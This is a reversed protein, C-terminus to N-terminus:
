ATVRTHGKMLEQADDMSMGTLLYERALTRGAIGKRLARAEVGAIESPKLRLPWVVKTEMKTLPKRAEM